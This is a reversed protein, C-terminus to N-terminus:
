HCSSRRGYIYGQIASIGKNTLVVCRFKEKKIGQKTQKLLEKIVYHEGRRLLHGRLLLFEQISIGTQNLVM